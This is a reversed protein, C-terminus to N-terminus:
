HLLRRCFRDLCWLLFLTDILPVAPSLMLVCSLGPPMPLPSRSACAHVTCMGRDGDMAALMDINRCVRTVEEKSPPVPLRLGHGVTAVDSLTCGGHLLNQLLSIGKKNNEPSPMGVNKLSHRKPSIGSSSIRSRQEPQRPPSRSDTEQPGSFWHQQGLNPGPSTAGSLLPGSVLQLRPPPQLPYAKQGSTTPSKPKGPAEEWKFPVSASIRFPQSFDDTPLCPAAARNTGVVAAYERCVACSNALLRVCWGSLYLM